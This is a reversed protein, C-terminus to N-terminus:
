NSNYENQILIQREYLSKKTKYNKYTPYLIFLEIPICIIGITVILLSTNLALIIFGIISFLITTIVIILKSRAKKYQRKKKFKM